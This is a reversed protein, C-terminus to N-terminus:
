SKAGKAETPILKFGPETPIVEGHNACRWVEVWEGANNHIYRRVTGRCYPCAMPLEPKNLLYGEWADHSIALATM